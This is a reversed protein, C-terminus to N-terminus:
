SAVYNTSTNYGVTILEPHAVKFGSRLRMWTWIKGKDKLLPSKQVVVGSQTGQFPIVDSAMVMNEQATFVCRQYKSYGAFDSGAGLMSGVETDWMVWEPVEAVLYNEYTYIGPVPVGEVILQHARVENRDKLYKIYSKFIGSQVLFIPWEAPPRSRNWFRLINNSNIIIDDFFDTVNEPNLVNTDATGDNTSVFKIDGAEAQTVIDYWWGKCHRQQKELRKRDEPSYGSLDIEYGYSPKNFDPDSFWGVKYFDDGLGRRLQLIQAQLVANLENSAEMNVVDNGLGQLNRACGRDWEDACQQGMVEYDCVELERVTLGYKITPEWTDCNTAPQLNNKPKLLHTMQLRDQVGTEFKYIGLQNQVINDYQISPALLFRNANHTDLDLLIEGANSSFSM